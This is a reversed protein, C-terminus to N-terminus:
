MLYTAIYKLVGCELHFTIPIFYLEDGALYIFEANQM